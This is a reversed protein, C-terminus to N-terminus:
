VVSLFVPQSLLILFMIIIKTYCYKERSLSNLYNEIMKPADGKRRYLDGLNYAFLQDDKMLQGGKEYTKIALEYKTLSIFANALRTVSIESKDLTEIAKQYQQNAKEDMIQREFVRGYTVYLSSNKPKRKLQKKIEKECDSYQELALLCEIYRQSYFENFNSKKFLNEYLVAAKQFEGDRYYQQALRNEQAFLTCVCFLIAITLFTRM